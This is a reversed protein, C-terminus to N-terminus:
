GVFKYGSGHWKAFTIVPSDASFVSLKVVHRVGANQAADIVRTELDRVALGTSVLYVKEIDTLASQLSAPNTYDGERIEAKGEFETAKALNRVLLRPTVGAAILQRAVEGGTSGTAGLVLIM